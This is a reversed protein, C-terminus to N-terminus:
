FFWIIRKKFINLYPLFRVQQCLNLNNLLVAMKDQFVAADIAERWAETDGCQPCKPCTKNQAPLTPCKPCPQPTPMMTTTTTTTVAATTTTM